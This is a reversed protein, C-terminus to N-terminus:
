QLPYGNSRGPSRGSGPISGPDEADCASEKDESPFGLSLVFRINFVINYACCPTFVLLCPDGNAMQSAPMAITFCTYIYM